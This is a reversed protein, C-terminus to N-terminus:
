IREEGTFNQFVNVEGVKRIIYDLKELLLNIDDKSISPQNKMLLDVSEYDLMGKKLLINRARAIQNLNVGQMRLESQIDMLMDGIEIQAKSIQEGQEPDVFRVGGLYRSLSGNIGQRIVTSRTCHCEKALKDVEKIENSNMRITVNKAANRKKKTESM